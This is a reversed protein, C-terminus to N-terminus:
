MKDLHRFGGTGVMMMSFILFNYFSHVIVSSALSRTILRVACLVLSVLGLLLLAGVSNGIQESHMLAFPISTVVSAIAMASLTWQPNGDLAVPLRPKHFFKEALWDYATCLSPLLFGRFIMEEFFPACTVGFVFLLWAAGPQKFIEEIPTNSPGPVLIINVLAALYCLFGTGALAWIHHRATRGNWHLGAFFNRHWLLPFTFFAILFAVVYIALEAGLAGRIDTAAAQITTAHFLHFYVASYLLIISAVLGMFLYAGFLLVHGLHPIRPAPPERPLITAFLLPENLLPGNSPPENFPLEGTTTQEAITEPLPHEFPLLEHPAPEAPQLDSAPTEGSMSPDNESAALPIAPEHLTQPPDLEDPTM